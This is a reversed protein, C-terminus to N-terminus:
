RTLLSVIIKLNCYTGFTGRMAQLDDASGIEQNEREFPVKSTLDASEMSTRSLTRQLLQTPQYVAAM